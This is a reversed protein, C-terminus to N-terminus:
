GLKVVASPHPARFERVVPVPFVPRPQRASKEFPVPLKLVPTPAPASIRVVPIGIGCQASRRKQEVGGTCLISGKSGGGEDKVAGTIGVSSVSCECEIVVCGALAVCRNACVVILALVVPPAIGSITIPREKRVGSARSFVAVPPHRARQWCRPAPLTM